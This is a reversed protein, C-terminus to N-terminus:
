DIVILEHTLSTDVLHVHLQKNESDGTMWAAKGKLVFADDGRSLHYDKTILTEAQLSNGEADILMGHVGAFQYNSGATDWREWLVVYQDGGIAVLKPREAHSTASSDAKKYDTLWRLHNTQLVGQSEVVLTDPLGPDLFNNIGMTEFERHARVMGLNRSDAQNIGTTSEASFLAIYGYTNDNEILAVNGLRSYTEGFEGKIYFLPYALTYSQSNPNVHALVVYRPYADGLHNEIFASGDYFVRQDLSHGCWVSSTKTIGGNEADLYTAIAKQHRIGNEDPDTHIGHVLALKGGGYALRATSVVMPSILKESAGAEKRAIDLDINFLVDGKSNVKIVRVIDTRYEDKAPYSVTVKDDIIGTAYYRNGDGDNALGMVRDLMPADEIAQSVIFGDGNPILHLLVAHNTDPTSYDQALVDLQDGGVAVIIEPTKGTNSWWPAKCDKQNADFPTLVSSVPIENGCIDQPHEPCKEVCLQYDGCANGDYNCNIIEHVFLNADDCDPGSVCNVGYGDGDKDACLPPVNIDKVEFTEVADDTVVDDTVVDHYENEVEFSEKGNQLVDAYLQSSDKWVYPIAEVDNNNKEDGCGALMFVLTLPNVYFAVTGIDVTVQAWGPLDEYTFDDNGKVTSKLKENSNTAYVVESRLGPANKVTHTAQSDAAQLLIKLPEDNWATIGQMKSLTNQYRILKVTDAEIRQFVDGIQNLKSSLTEQYADFDEEFQSWVENAVWGKVSNLFQDGM